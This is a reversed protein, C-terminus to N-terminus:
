RAPSAPMTPNSYSLYKMSRPLIFTQLSANASQNAAPTGDDTDILMSAGGTYADGTSKAAGGNGTGASGWKFLDEFGDYLLIPGQIAASGVVSVRRTYEQGM